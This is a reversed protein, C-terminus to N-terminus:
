NPDKKPPKQQDCAGEIPKQRPLKRNLLRLAEEVGRNLEAVLGRWGRLSADSRFFDFTV